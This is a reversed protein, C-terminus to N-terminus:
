SPKRKKRPKQCTCSPAKGATGEICRAVRPRECTVECQRQNNITTCTSTSTGDGTSSTINTSTSVNTNSDSSTSTSSTVSNNISTSSSSNVSSTNSTISAAGAEFALGLSLAAILAYRM